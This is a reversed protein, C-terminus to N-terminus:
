KSTQFELCEASNGNQTWDIDNFMSMFPIIGEFQEPNTQRTKLDKQSTILHTNSMSAIVMWCVACAVQSVDSLGRGSPLLVFFVASLFFPLGERSM